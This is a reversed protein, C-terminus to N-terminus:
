SAESLSAVPSDFSEPRPIRQAKPKGVNADVWQSFNWLEDKFDSLGEAIDLIQQAEDKDSDLSAYNFTENAIKIALLRRELGDILRKVVIVWVMNMWVLNVKEVSEEQDM